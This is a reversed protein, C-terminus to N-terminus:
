EYIFAKYITDKTSKTERRTRDWSGHRREPNRDPEPQGARQRSAYEGADSNAEPQEHGQQLETSRDARVADGGLDARSQEPGQFPECPSGITVVEPEVDSDDCPPSERCGNKLLRWDAYNRTRIRVSNKATVMSGKVSDFLPYKYHYYSQTSYLEPLLRALSKLDVSCTASPQNSILLVIVESNYSM